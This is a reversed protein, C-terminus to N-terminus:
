GSWRHGTAPVPSCYGRKTLVVIQNERDGAGRTGFTGTQHMTNMWANPPDGPKIPDSQWLARQGDAGVNGVIVMRNTKPDYM